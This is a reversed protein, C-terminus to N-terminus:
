VILLYNLFAASFLSNEDRGSRRFLDRLESVTTGEFPVQVESGSSEDDPPSGFLWIM